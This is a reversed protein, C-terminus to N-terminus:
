DIGWELRLYWGSVRVNPDDPIALGPYLRKQLEVDPKEEKVVEEEYGSKEGKDKKKKKKKAKKEKIQPKMKQILRLLNAVFSEQLCVM